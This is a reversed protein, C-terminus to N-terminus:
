KTLCHFYQGDREWERLEDLPEDPGRERMTKGIRLGGRTPHRRGEAEDLGSIRGARPDDERYHGLVDHVQDVLRLALQGFAGDGTRRSLGLFNCVAFADTWLYRQPTEGSILGTRDAFRMM